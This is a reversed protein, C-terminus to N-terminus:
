SNSSREWYISSREWHNKNFYRRFVDFNHYGEYKTMQNVNHCLTVCNIDKFRGQVVKFQKKTHKGVWIPNNLGKNQLFFLIQYSCVTKHNTCSWNFVKLLNGYHFLPNPLRLFFLKRCSRNHFNDDVFLQALRLHFVVQKRLLVEYLIKDKRVAITYSFNMIVCHYANESLDQKRVNENSPFNLFYSIGTFHFCIFVLSFRIKETRKM